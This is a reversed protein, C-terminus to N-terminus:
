ENVYEPHLRMLTEKFRALPRLKSLRRLERLSNAASRQSFGLFTKVGAVHRYQIKSRQTLNGFTPVCNPQSKEENGCM